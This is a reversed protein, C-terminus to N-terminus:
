FSIIIFIVNQSIKNLFPYYILFLDIFYLLNPFNPRGEQVLHVKLYGDVMSKRGQLFDVEM